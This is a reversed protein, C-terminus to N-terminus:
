PVFTSVKKWKLTLRILESWLNSLIIYEAFNGVSRNKSKFIEAINDAILRM